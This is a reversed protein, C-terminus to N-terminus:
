TSNFMFLTSYCKLTDFGFRKLTHDSELWKLANSQVSRNESHVRQLELSTNAPVDGICEKPRNQLPIFKRNIKYAHNVTVNVITANNYRWANVAM